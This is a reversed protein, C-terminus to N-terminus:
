FLLSSLQEQLHSNQIKLAETASDGNPAMLEARSSSREDFKLETKFDEVEVAEVEVASADVKPIKTAATEAELATSTATNRSESAAAGASEGPFRMGWFGAVAETFKVEVYGNMTRENKSKVVQCAVEKKTRENVLRLMQGPAVRENLRIVAGQGFVLVTKTAVSFFESKEGIEGARAGNVTVSVELAVAQQRASAEEHTPTSANGLSSGPASDRSAPMVENERATLPM